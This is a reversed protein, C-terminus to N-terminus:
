LILVVGAIGLFSDAVLLNYLVSAGDVVDQVTLMSFVHIILSPFQDVILVAFFDTIHDLFAFGTNLFCVPFILQIIPKCRICM